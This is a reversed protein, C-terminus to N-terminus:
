PEGADEPEPGDERDLRAQREKILGYIFPISLGSGIFGSFLTALQLSGLAIFPKTVEIEIVQSWVRESFPAGGGAIPTWEVDISVVLLQRGEQESSISWQWDLRPSPVSRSPQEGPAVNFAAADLNATARALYGEGRAEEIPGATGLPVLTGLVQTAGPQLTLPIVGGDSAILSVTLAESRGSELERPFEARGFYSQPVPTSATPSPEPQETEEPPSTSTPPATTPVETAPVATPTDPPVTATNPPVTATGPQSTPTDPPVTPTGPGPTPTDPPVPTATALQTPTSTPPVPTQTLTATATPPVPTPTNPAPTPTEPPVPTATGPVVTSPPEVVQVPELVTARAVGCRDIVLILGIVAFLLFVGAPVLLATRLPM